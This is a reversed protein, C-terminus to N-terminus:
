SDACSIGLKQLERLSSEASTHLIAVGGASRWESTNKKYDDILINAIGNLMAYNQKDSRRAVLHIRDSNTLQLNKQLWKRKGSESTPDSYPLASLIHGNHQNVVEWIKNGDKFWDLNEWFNPQNRTLGWMKSVTLSQVPQDTLKQVASFFDCLVGDM